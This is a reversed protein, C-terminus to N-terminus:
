RQYRSPLGIAFAAFLIYLIVLLSRFCVIVAFTVARRDPTGALVAVAAETRMRQSDRMLVVAAGLGGREAGAPKTTFYPEFIRARLAEPIGPGTDDVELVAHDGEDRTRLTLDGGEPM